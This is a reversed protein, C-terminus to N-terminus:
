EWTLAYETSLEGVPSAEVRANRAGASELVARLVGETYAPLMFEGRMLVVAARPGTIKVEREGYSVAMRYGAPVSTLVREVDGGALLLLTRGAMSSFFDRAAQLGMRRQAAELGGLQGGLERSVERLLRLFGAVPYSFFDVFRKEGAAEQCRRAVEEGGLSRVTSLVGNFFLGRTTDAPTALAIRREFEEALGRETMPEMAVAVARMSM